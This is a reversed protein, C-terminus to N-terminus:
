KAGTHKSSQLRAKLAQNSNFKYHIENAFKLGFLVGAANCPGQLLVAKKNINFWQQQWQQESTTQLWSKSSAIEQITNSTFNQRISHGSYLLSQSHFITSMVWHNNSNLTEPLWLSLTVALLQDELVLTVTLMSLCWTTVPLSHYQSTVWRVQLVVQHHTLSGASQNGRLM